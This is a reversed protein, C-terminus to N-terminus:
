VMRTIYQIKKFQHKLDQNEQVACCKLKKGIILQQVVLASFSIVAAMETTQWNRDNSQNM